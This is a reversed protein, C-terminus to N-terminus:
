LTRKDIPRRKADAPKVAPVADYPNYGYAGVRGKSQRKGLSHARLKQELTAELSLELEAPASSSKDQKKTSV